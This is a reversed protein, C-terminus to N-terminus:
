HLYQLDCRSSCRLEVFFNLVSSTDVYLLYNWSLTCGKGLVINNLNFYHCVRVYKKLERVLFHKGKLDEEQWCYNEARVQMIRKPVDYM